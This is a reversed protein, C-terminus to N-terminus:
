PKLKAEYIMKQKPHIDALIYRDQKVIAMEDLVDVVNKYNAYDTAYIIANFGRENLAEKRQQIILERLQLGYNVEKFNHITLDMENVDHWFVRNNKGLILYFPKTLFCGTVSSSSENHKFEPMNLKIMNPKALYSSIMFSIMLLFGLDVMPTMDVRLIHTHSSAKAM